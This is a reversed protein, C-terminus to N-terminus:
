GPTPLKEILTEIRARAADLRSRLLRAEAQSAALDTHLAHNEDRLQQALLALLSVREALRDLEELMGSHYAGGRGGDLSRPWPSSPSGIKASRHEVYEHVDASRAGVEPRESRGQGWEGQTENVTATRSAACQRPESRMAQAQQAKNPTQNRNHTTPQSHPPTDSLSRAAQHRTSETAHNFPFCSSPESELGTSGGCRYAPANTDRDSVCQQWALRWQAEHMPLRRPAGALGSVPWAVHLISRHPLQDPLNDRRGRRKGDSNKREKAPGSRAGRQLM